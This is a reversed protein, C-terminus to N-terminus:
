FVYLENKAQYSYAILGYGCFLGAPIRAKKSHPFIFSNSAVIIM